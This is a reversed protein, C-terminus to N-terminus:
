CDVLIHNHEKKSSELSIIVDVLRFIMLKCFIFQNRRVRKKKLTRCDYNWSKSEWKKEKNKEEKKRIPHAQLPRTLFPALPPKVGRGGSMIQPNLFLVFISLLSNIVLGEGGSKCVWRPSQRPTRHGIIRRDIQKSKEGKERKIAWTKSNKSCM